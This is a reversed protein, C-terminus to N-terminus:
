CSLENYGLKVTNKKIQIFNLKTISFFYEFYNKNGRMYPKTDNRELEM